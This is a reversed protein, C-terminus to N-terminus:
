KDKTQKYIDIAGLISIAALSILIIIGIMNNIIIITGM